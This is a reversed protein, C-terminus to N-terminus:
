PHQFLESFAYTEYSAYSADLVRNELDEKALDLRMRDPWAIVSYETIGQYQDSRSAARMLDIMEAQGVLRGESAYRELLMQMDRYRYNQDTPAPAYSDSLLAEPRAGSYVFFTNTTLMVNPDLPEIQGPYRIAGGWSDTEFTVCPSPEGILAPSSVALNWGGCFTNKPPFWLAEAQHTTTATQLLRRQSMAYGLMDIADWDPRSLVSHPATVLGAENMGWDMGLFGPWDVAVTRMLGETAAPEVAILMLDNITIKRYDNEGDMNKAHILERSGTRDGWVVASSCLPQAAALPSPGFIQTNPMAYFSNLGYLDLLSVERDLYPLFLNNGSDRMGALLAEFETRFTDLGGFNSSVTALFSDKYFQASHSYHEVLVYNIWDRIQPAILRGMAYAREVGSGWLHLVSMNRLTQLRGGGSGSAVTVPGEPLPTPQVLEIDLNELRGNRALEITPFFLNDTTQYWGVPEAFDKHNVAQDGDVDCWAWLAYEGAALDSIQYQGPTQMVDYGAIYESDLMPVRTEMERLRGMDTRAIALVYITGSANSAVAVTGSLSGGWNIDNDSDNCGAALFILLLVGTIARRSLSRVVDM